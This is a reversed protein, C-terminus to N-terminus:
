HTTTNQLAIQRSIKVREKMMLWLRIQCVPSRTMCMDNRCALSQHFAYPVREGTLLMAYLTGKRILRGARAM